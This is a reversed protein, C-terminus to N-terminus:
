RMFYSITSTKSDPNYRFYILFNSYDLEASFKNAWVVRYDKNFVNAAQIISADMDSKQWDSKSFFHEATTVFWIYAADPIIGLSEVMLSESWVMNNQFVFYYTYKHYNDNEQYTYYAKGDETWGYEMQPFSKKMDSFSKRLNNGPVQGVVITTIFIFFLIIIRKM